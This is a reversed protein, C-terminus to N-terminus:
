VESTIASYKYELLSQMRGRRLEAGEEGEFWSILGLFLTFLM